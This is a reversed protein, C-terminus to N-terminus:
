EVRPVLVVVTRVSRRRPEEGEREILREEPGFLTRGLDPASPVQPGKTEGAGRGGAAGMRMADEAVRAWDVGSEEPVLAVAMAEGARWAGSLAFRRLILGEELVGPTPEVGLRRRLLTADDVEGVHQPVLEVQLVRGEPREADVARWARALVRVVGGRTALDGSEQEGAGARLALRGPAGASYLVTWDLLEGLATRQVPGVTPLRRVVRDLEAIPVPVLRVGNAAWVERELEGWPGSAAGVGTSESARAWWPGFVRAVAGDRDEVRVVVVELGASAVPVGPGVLGERTM